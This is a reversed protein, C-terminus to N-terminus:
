NKFNGDPMRRTTASVRQVFNTQSTTSKKTSHCRTATYWAPHTGTVNNIARM